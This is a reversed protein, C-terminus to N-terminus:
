KIISNLYKLQRTKIGEPMKKENKLKEIVIPYAPNKDITVVRPNSVYFIQLAKQFLRKAAKHDHSKSLYFDITNGKSDVARNLYM